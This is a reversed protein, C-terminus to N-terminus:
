PMHLEVIMLRSGIRYSKGRGRRERVGEMGAVEHNGQCRASSTTDPLGEWQKEWRREALGLDVHYRVAHLGAAEERQETIMETGRLLRM